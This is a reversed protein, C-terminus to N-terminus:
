RAGMIHLAIFYVAASGLGTASVWIQMICFEMGGNMKHGKRM